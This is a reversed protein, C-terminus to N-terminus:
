PENPERSGQSLPRHELPFFSAFGLFSDRHGPRLAPYVTSLRCTSHTTRRKGEGTGLQDKQTWSCM